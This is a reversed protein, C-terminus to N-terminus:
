NNIFNEVRTLVFLERTLFENPVINRSQVKTKVESTNLIGGIMM